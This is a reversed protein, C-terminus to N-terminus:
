QNWMSHCQKQPPCSLTACSTIQLPLSLNERLSHSNWPGPPLVTDRMTHTYTHKCTYTIPTNGNSSSKWPGLSLTSNMLPICCLPEKRDGSEMVEQTPSGADPDGYFLTLSRRMLSGLQKMIQERQPSPPGKFSGVKRGQIICILSCSVALCFHRAPAWLSSFCCTQTCFQQFVASTAWKFILQLSHIHSFSWMFSTFCLLLGSLLIVWLLPFPSIYVLLLLPLFMFSLLLILFLPSPLIWIPGRPKQAALLSMGPLPKWVCECVCVCIRNLFRVPCPSQTYTSTNTYVLPRKKQTSLLDSKRQGSPTPGALTM